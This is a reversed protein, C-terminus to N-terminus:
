AGLQTITYMAVLGWLVVTAGVAMAAKRSDFGHLVRTSRYLLYISPLAIVAVAAYVVPLVFYWGFLLVPVFLLVTPAFSYIVCQLSRDFDGRTGIAKASAHLMVTTLLILGAMLMFAVLPLTGIAEIGASVILLSFEWGLVANVVMMLVLTIVTWVVTGVAAFVLPEDIRQVDHDVYEFFGETDTGIRRLPQLYGETFYEIRLDRSLVEILVAAIIFIGTFVQFLRVGLGALVLINQTLAFILAGLFTGPISGEGGFLNTGGIVVSAIVILEVGQGTSPSVAQTFALQGMGAFAALLAVLMFNIIKVHDTKIGTRQASEQNGGTFMSRYGFATKNLVYYGVGMLALTWVIQIPFQGVVPLVGSVDLIGGIYFLLQPYMDDTISATQGGLIVLTLGRLLTLTGITVILSPLGLKTILLGQFLGHLAALLFVVLVVFSISLGGTYLTAVLAASLAMLSGVSLDFEGSVMLLTMGYGIIATIATNRVIGLMNNTSLFVDSRVLGGLLLLVLVALMAGVERRQALRAALSPGSDRTVSADVEAM